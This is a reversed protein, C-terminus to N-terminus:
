NDSGSGYVCSVNGFSVDNLPISNIPTYKKDDAAVHSANVLFATGLM